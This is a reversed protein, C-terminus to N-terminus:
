LKPQVLVNEMFTKTEIQIVKDVAHGLGERVIHVLKRKGNELHENEKIIKKYPAMDDESGHCWLVPTMEQEACVPVSKGSLSSYLIFGGLTKKYMKWVMAAIFGGQSFGGIFCKTSDGLKHVEIDLVEAVKRVSELAQDIKIM